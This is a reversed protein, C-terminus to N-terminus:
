NPVIEFPSEDAFAARGERKLNSSLTKHFSPQPSTRAAKLPCHLDTLAITIIPVNFKKTKKNKLTLDIFGM